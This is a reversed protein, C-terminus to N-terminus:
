SEGKSEGASKGNSSAELLADLANVEVKLHFIQDEKHEIVARFCEKESSFRFVAKHVADREALETQIAALVADRELTNLHPSLGAAGYLAALKELEGTPTMQLTQM